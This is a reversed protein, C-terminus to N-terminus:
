GSAHARHARGTVGPGVLCRGGYLLSGVLRAQMTREDRVARLEGTEGTADEPAVVHRLLRDLLGEFAAHFDRSRNSGVTPGSRAQSKEISRFRRTSM